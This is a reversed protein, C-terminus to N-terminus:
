SLKVAREEAQTHCSLQPIELELDGTEMLENIKSDPLSQLVPPESLQCSQWDIMDIYDSANVNIKPLTFSRVKEDFDKENRAKRIRKWALKRIVQREDYIM